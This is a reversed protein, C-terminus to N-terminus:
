FQNIKINIRKKEKDAQFSGALHRDHAIKFSGKWLLGVAGLTILDLPPFYHAVVKGM